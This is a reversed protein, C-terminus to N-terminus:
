YISSQNARSLTVLSGTASLCKLTSASGSALMFYVPVGQMLPRGVNSVGQALTPDDGSTTFYAVGDRSFLEYAIGGTLPTAFTSVAGSALQRHEIGESPIQYDSWINKQDFIKSQDYAM